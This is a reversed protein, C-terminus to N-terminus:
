IPEGQYVFRDRQVPDRHYIHKKVMLQRFKETAASMLTTPPKEFIEVFNGGDWAMLRGDAPGGVLQIEEYDSM